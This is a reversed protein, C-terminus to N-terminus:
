TTCLYFGSVAIRETSFFLNNKQSAGVWFLTNAAGPNVSVTVNALTNGNLGVAFAGLGWSGSSTFPLSISATATSATVPYTVDFTFYVGHSGDGYNTHCYYGSNVTLTLAGGSADAPTYSACTSFNPAGGVLSANPISAATFNAGSITPTLTCTLATSSSAAVVCNTTFSSQGTGGQIASVPVSINGNGMAQTAAQASGSLLLLLAVITANRMSVTYRNVPFLGTRNRADFSFM